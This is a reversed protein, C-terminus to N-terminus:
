EATGYVGMTVLHDIAKRDASLARVEGALKQGPAFMFVGSAERNQVQGEFSLTGAARVLNFHVRAGDVLGRDLGQLHAVPVPYSWCPTPCIMSATGGRVETSHPRDAIGGSWITLNVNGAGDIFPAAGFNWHGTYVVGDPGGRSGETLDPPAAALKLSSMVAVVTAAITCVFVVTPKSVRGRKQRSDLVAGVRTALDGRNVMALLPSRQTASFRRALGVLQDAYATAESHRLVADDCAREAELLLRCWAIWVLPHFWYAACVARALCQSAWDGRRVHELEHIMARNLDEGHWNQAHSPLVIVPLFIGFTVPTALSEHLLVEVQRHIDADLMIRDVVAQGDRWALGSRRLLHVERMGAIIRLVFVAAGAIWGALLLHYLPIEHRTRRRISSSGGGDGAAAPPVLPSATPERAVAIRVPSVLLSATPLALLAAFSAALIVHRVAARNGRALWAAILGLTTVLTVKALISAALSNSVALMLERIMPMM